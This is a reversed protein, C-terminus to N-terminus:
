QELAFEYILNRQKDLKKIIEKLQDLTEVDFRIEWAPKDKGDRGTYTDIHALSIDEPLTALIKFIASRKHGAPIDLTQQKEIRTKKLNWRVEVIDERQIKLEQVRSCEPQHVSLGRESLLGYLRKQTPLPNCCRSLKVWAPDVSDLEISNLAGTPPMLTEKDAYLGNKIEYIVERLRMKGQGLLTLLAETSPLGFYELVKEMDHDHLITCPIGYRKLEQHLILEGTEMALRQRRTRFTRALEARARPSQCLEQIDLDFNVHEKQTLISVRDGDRLIFDQGVERQGVQAGTCRHGIETHVKFAFDLVTSQRPLCIRDGKPTYTYIETKGSAAIMDTYSLDADGGMIHFMETIEKKFRSPVARKVYWDRIIGLKAQDVMEQTRIKFLYNQGTINARVHLSQYGTPKPNAIFDRMTRPIPPFTQNLIGLTRYCTQLDDVVIYIELPNEVASVLGGEQPRYYAWLGKSKLRIASNIWSDDLEKKLTDIIGAQEAQRLLRRISVLVRPGQRPYKYLLALNYLERKIGFAGLVGAMPAYVGLTEDSIKQRKHKPMSDMTRLNHLRDALKVLMVELHAASGSFLKRHVLNLFTQRNGKFHSIKTCGEVIAEVKPGFLEGVLEMTVEEVDEVTDHLMAAALTEQDSVGLEKALIMAVMCPHSVYAEGSKRRQDQHADVAFSFAKWFLHSEKDDQGGLISAMEQSYAAIDFPQHAM